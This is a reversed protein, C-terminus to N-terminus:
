GRDGGATTSLIRAPFGSEALRAVLEDRHAADRTEVVADLEAMKIPVDRFLRQHHVEVINGGCDGILSAVRALAGPVDSIEVRLRVLRGDRVLGRMLISALIRSDINGGSVVVGVRRDAFLARHAFVAALAAAGAGEAVTKEIEILQQVTRELDDEGVTVWDDVARGAIARTLRGPAKVAIGEAITQGGAPAPGGRLVRIMAPYLEAQVGVVRIAPRIAKAALAIGSILGGGGVPVALVDLDPVDELMELGVTGQGAIVSEDDYPHVFTLGEAAAVEDARAAAEDFGDGHLLVRAGFARTHNVKSFPTHRPMVVTAPIGLRQAHYAVGQAHNGASVTIVGARRQGADLSLLKVLAGREKFSATYQLNEMKLFVTAGSIESLLRAHWVPTRVVAGAIARAAARIRDADVSM